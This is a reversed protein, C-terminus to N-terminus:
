WIFIAYFVTWAFALLFVAAFVIFVFLMGYTAAREPRCSSYLLSDTSYDSFWGYVAGVLFALVIVSLGAKIAFKEGPTADRCPSAEVQVHENM